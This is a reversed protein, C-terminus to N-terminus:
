ADNASAEEFVMRKDLPSRRTKKGSKFALAGSDVIASGGQLALGPRVLRWTSLQVVVRRCQAGVVQSLVEKEHIGRSGIEMSLLSQVEEASRM